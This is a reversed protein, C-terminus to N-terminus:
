SLPQCAGGPAEKGRVLGPTGKPATLQPWGSSVENIEWKEPIVTKCQRIIKIDQFGNIYKSPKKFQKLESPLVLGQQEVNKLLLIYSM